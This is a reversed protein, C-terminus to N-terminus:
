SMLWWGSSSTVITASAITVIILTVIAGAATVDIDNIVAIVTDSTNVCSFTYIHIIRKFSSETGWTINFSFTISGSRSINSSSIYNM